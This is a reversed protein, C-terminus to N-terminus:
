QDEPVLGADKIAQLALLEDASGIQYSMLHEIRDKDVLYFRVRPRRGTEKGQKGQLFARVCPLWLGM